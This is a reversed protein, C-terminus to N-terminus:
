THLFTQHSKKKEFKPVLCPCLWYFSVGIIFKHYLSVRYPITLIALYLLKNGMNWNKNKKLLLSLSPDCLRCCICSVDALLNSPGKSEFLNIIEDQTQPYCLLILHTLSGDSSFCLPRDPWTMKDKGTRHQWMRKLDSLWKICKCCYIYIYISLSPDLDNRPLFRYSCWRKDYRWM